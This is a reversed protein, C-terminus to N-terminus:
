LKFMLVRILWFLHVLIDSIMELSFKIQLLKIAEAKLKKYNNENINFINKASNYHQLFFAELMVNSYFSSAIYFAIVEPM